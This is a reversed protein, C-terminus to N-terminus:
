RGGNEEDKEITFKGIDDYYTFEVIQNKKVKSVKYLYEDNKFLDNSNDATDIAYENEGIQEVRYYKAPESWWKQDDSDRHEEWCKGAADFSIRTESDDTGSDPENEEVFVKGWLSKRIEDFDKSVEYEGSLDYEVDENDYCDIDQFSYTYYDKGDSEIIEAVIRIEESDIYVSPNDTHLDYMLKNTLDTILEKASDFGVSSDIANLGVSGMNIVHDNNDSSVTKEASIVVEDPRTTGDVGIYGNGAKKNFQVSIQKLDESVITYSGDREENKSMEQYGDLYYYSCTNIADVVDNVSAIYQDDVIIPSYISVDCTKGMYGVTIINFGPHLGNSENNEIKWESVEQTSGDKHTAVVTFDSSNDIVTGAADSGNYQAEISVVSSPNIKFVYIGVLFAACCIAILSVFFIIKKNKKEKERKKQLDREKAIKQKVNYGREAADKYGRALEFLSLVNEYDELTNANQLAKEAQEYSRKKEQQERKLEKVEEIKIWSDKFGEASRLLDLVAEYDDETQANQLRLLAQEYKKQKSVQSERDKAMSIAIDEYNWKDSGLYRNRVGHRELAKIDDESLARRIETNCYEFASQQADCESHIIESITKEVESSIVEFLGSINGDNLYEEFQDYYLLSESPSTNSAKSFAMDTVINYIDQSLGMFESAEYIGKCSPALEIAQKYAETNLPDLRLATGINSKKDEVDSTKPNLGLYYMSKKTDYSRCTGLDIIGADALLEQESACLAELYKSVAKKLKRETKNWEKTVIRDLEGEMQATYQRELREAEKFNKKLQKRTTLLNDLSYMFVSSADGLIGYPLGTANARADEYLASTVDLIGGTGSSVVEFLFSFYSNFLETLEGFAEVTENNLDGNSAYVGYQRLRQLTDRYPKKVDSDFTIKPTENFVYSKVTKYDPFFSRSVLKYTSDKISDYYQAIERFLGYSSTCTVTEGFIEFERKQLNRKLSERRHIEAKVNAINSFYKMDNKVAYERAAKSKGAVLTESSDNFVKNGLFAVSEPFHVYSLSNCGLFVENGVEILGEPFDVYKLYSCGRFTRDGIAKLTNGEFIIEEVPCNSFVDNDIRRIGNPIIVKKEDSNYAKIVNNEITFISMETEKAM